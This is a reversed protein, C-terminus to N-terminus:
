DEEYFTRLKLVHNELLFDQFPKSIIRANMAKLNIGQLTAELDTFIADSELLDKSGVYKSTIVPTGYSLAELTIFGFTEYWQSPVIVLDTEEFINGLDESKYRGNVKIQKNELLIPHDGYLTLIINEPKKKMYEILLNFGKYAKYPGLYTIRLPERFTKVHRNDKINAHTLHLVKGPLKGLYSEYVERTLLSNFHFFDIMKIMREYYALLQEYEEIQEKRGGKSNLLSSSEKFNYAKLSKLKKIWGQNKLERYIKSQLVHLMLTSSAKQNCEVCKKAERHECIQQKQNFLTVKPCIGFYDHTTYILKINLEKCIVLMEEYMGMLTHIHFVEIHHELLFSKFEDFVVKRMFLSPHSIGGLLPVPLPNVLEYVNIGGEEKYFSIAPQKDYIKLVGPFLCFVNEQQRVQEKMLDLTYKTLGGSRYPPLGLTYHLIKM